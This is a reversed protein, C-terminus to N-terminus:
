LDPLVATHAACIDRYVSHDDGQEFASRPYTCLSDVGPIDFSDVGNTEIQIAGDFNGQASLIGAGESLVAVRADETKRADLASRVEDGLVRSVRSIDPVGNVVVNSLFEGVDLAIYRGQQIARSVDFGESELREILGQGHAATVTVVAAGDSELAARLFRVGQSFFVSDESYFLVEHRSTETAAIGPDLDSSTYQGGALIADIAPILDSEANVKHIYGRAGVNFAEQVIEPAAEMSIFLLKSRPSDVAIQKAASLGNRKPLGIDMLILDPKLLKAKEVAELGDVAEAIITLDTRSELMRRVVRRFPEFDEVLLIRITVV